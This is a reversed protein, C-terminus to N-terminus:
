YRHTGPVYDSFDEWTQPPKTPDLGVQRFLDANLFIGQVSRNFPIAFLHGQYRLDDLFRPHSIM